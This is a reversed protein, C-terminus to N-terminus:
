QEPSAGPLATFLEAIKLLPMRKEEAVRRLFDLADGANLKEREMVACKARELTRHESIQREVEACDQRIREMARNRALAAALGPLLQKETVPKVLYGGAGLDRAASVLREDSRGTVFFVLEALHEKRLYAAASLGDLYRLPIDLFVTEPRLAECSWATTPKEPSRIDAGSWFGGCDGATRRAATQWSLMTERQRCIGGCM